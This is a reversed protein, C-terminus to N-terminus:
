PKHTHHRLWPARRERVLAVFKDRQTPSLLALFKLTEATSQHQFERWKRSAEDFNQMIKASDAHPKAMEDWAGAILPAIQRHMEDSRAQMAAIYHTFGTHQVPTLNLEAAIQSYRQAASPQGPPATFRTWAAGAIFCLNLVVSVALLAAIVRRRPWRMAQTTGAVAM